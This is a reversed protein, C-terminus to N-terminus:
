AFATAVAVAAELETNVSDSRHRIWASSESDHPDYCVIPYNHDYAWQVEMPTGWTEVGAERRFLLVSCSGLLELDNTVVTEPVHEDGSYDHEAIPNVLEVDDSVYEVARQRWSYPDTSHNIPGGLYIRSM